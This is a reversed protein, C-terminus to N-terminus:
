VPVLTKVVVKRQLGPEEALYVDGQGGSKWKQTIRYPGLKGENPGYGVTSPAAPTTTAICQRVLGAVRDDTVTDLHHACTTCDSLHGAVQDSQVDGLQGLAFAHLVAESPHTVDSM